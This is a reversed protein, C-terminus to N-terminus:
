LNIVNMPVRNYPKKMFKDIPEDATWPSLLFNAGFPHYEENVGGGWHCAVYWDLGNFPYCTKGKQKPATGLTYIMRTTYTEGTKPSSPPATNHQTYAAGGFAENGITVICPSVDTIRPLSSLYTAVEHARGDGLKILNRAKAIAAKLRRKNRMVSDEVWVASDDGKTCHLSFAWPAGDAKSGRGDFQWEVRVWEPSTEIGFELGNREEGFDDFLTGPKAKTTLAFEVCRLFYERLWYTENDMNVPDGQTDVSPLSWWDTNKLYCLVLCSAIFAEASHFTEQDSPLHGGMPNEIQKATM